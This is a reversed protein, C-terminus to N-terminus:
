ALNNEKEKKIYTNFVYNDPDSARMKMTLYVRDRLENVADNHSLDLKPYFPGDLTIVLKPKKTIKRLRFTTTAVVAPCNLNVPYNFSSAKFDRIGTYYPWIHAEPYVVIKGRRHNVHYDTASLYNKWMLEGKPVPFGGVFSVIPRAWKVAFADHSAIIVSYKHGNVLVAHNIPDFATVHNAYLIYGKHKVERLIKKNCVKTHYTVKSTIQLLPVFLFQVIVFRFFRYFVNKHIYRWDEPLASPNFQLRAFDDNREDEYYITNGLGKTSEKKAM